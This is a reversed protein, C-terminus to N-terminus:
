TKTFPRPAGIAHCIPTHSVATVAAEAWVALEVPQTSIVCQDVRPLTPDPRDPFGVPTERDFRCGHSLSGPEGDSGSKMLASAALESGSGWWLLMGQGSM